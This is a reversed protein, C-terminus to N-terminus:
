RTMVWVTVLALVLLAVLAVDVLVLACCLAGDRVPELTDWEGPPPETGTVQEPPQPPTWPRGDWPTVM